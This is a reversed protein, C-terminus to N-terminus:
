PPAGPVQMRVLPGEVEQPLLHTGRALDDEGLTHRM